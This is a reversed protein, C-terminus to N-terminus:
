YGKLIFDEIKDKIIERARKAQFGRLRTSTTKVGDVVSVQEPGCNVLAFVIQTALNHIKEAEEASINDRPINM